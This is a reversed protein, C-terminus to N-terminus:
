FPLPNESNSSDVKSDLMQLNEVVIDTAYGKTGDGKDWTRYEIRGEVFVKSGKKLWKEVIEATKEWAVINHWSTSKEGKITRTTALSFNAVKKGSPTTKIEPDKGLNVILLIRNLM